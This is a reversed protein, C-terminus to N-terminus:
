YNLFRGKRLKNVSTTTKGQWSMARGHKTFQWWKSTKLQAAINAHSWCVVTGYLGANNFYTQYNLVCLWRISLLNNHKHRLHFLKWKSTMKYLLVLLFSPFTKNLSASLVNWKRNYPMPCITFSWESLSLPFRSGGCPSSKRNVALTIKYAGDWLCSLVHQSSRSIASYWYNLLM